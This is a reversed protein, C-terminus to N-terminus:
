AVLFVFLFYILMRFIYKEAMGFDDTLYYLPEVLGGYKNKQRRSPYFPLHSASSM